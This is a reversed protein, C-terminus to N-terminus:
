ELISLTSNLKALAGVAQAVEARTAIAAYILSGDMSRHAVPDVPKSYGDDKVLKVFRIVPSFTKDFEIGFKQLFGKM